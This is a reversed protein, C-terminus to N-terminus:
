SVQKQVHKVKWDHLKPASNLKVVIWNRGYNYIEYLLSAPLLFFCVFVWRYNILIYEILKDVGSSIGMVAPWCV